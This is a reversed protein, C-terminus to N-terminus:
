KAVRWEYNEAQWQDAEVLVHIKKGDYNKRKFEM